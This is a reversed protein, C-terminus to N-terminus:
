SLTLSVIHGSTRTPSPARPGPEFSASRLNTEVQRRVKNCHLLLQLVGEEDRVAIEVWFVPANKGKLQTSLVGSYSPLCQLLFLITHGFHIMRIFWCSPSPLELWADLSRVLPGLLVNDPTDSTPSECRLLPPLPSLSEM